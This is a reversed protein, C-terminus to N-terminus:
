GLPRRHHTADRHRGRRRRGPVDPVGLEPARRSDRGAPWGANAENVAALGMAPDLEALRVAFEFNGPQMALARRLLQVARATDGLAVFQQAINTLDWPEPQFVAGQAEFLALLRAADYPRQANTYAFLLGRVVAALSDNQAQAALATAFPESRYEALVIGM